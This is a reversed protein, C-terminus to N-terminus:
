WAGTESDAYVLVLLLLLTHQFTLHDVLLM